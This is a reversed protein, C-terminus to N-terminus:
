GRLNYSKHSGRVIYVILSGVGAHCGLMMVLELATM